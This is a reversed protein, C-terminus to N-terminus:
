NLTGIPRQLAENLREYDKNSYQRGQVPQHDPACLGHASIEVGDVGFERGTEAMMESNLRRVGELINMRAKSDLRRSYGSEFTVRRLGSRAMDRVTSRMATSYDM